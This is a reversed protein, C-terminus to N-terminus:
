ADGAASPNAENLADLLADHLGAYAEAHGSVSLEPVGALRELVAAVSADGAQSAGPSGGINGARNVSGAPVAPWSVGAPDTDTEPFNNLETM